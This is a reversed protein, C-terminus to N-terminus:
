GARCCAQCVSALLMPEPEFFFTVLHGEPTLLPGANRLATRLAQWHWHWDFRRRRLLPRLARAAPADWLWNAWLASLAGFVADPRPPDTLILAVSGPPVVKAADRAPLNVLIYGEADGRVLAAVDEAQPVPLLPPSSTLHLLREEFILWINREVYYAPVRLTRPRPRKEDYPDLSSGADFCDILAATLATRVDDGAELGELRMSLDMLASLNRPTYLGVLDAAQERAPHHLPAARDLAYYYAIGRPPVRRAAELDEDDPTGERVEECRPCRVAKKFPYNGDRDWAFWEAVGSVGCTPCTSRYLWSMYRHLPREGKPSDALHTFTVKVKDVDLRRLRLRAAVLLLPNVSFGLARRGEVVAERVITPGQCFLDVVLDGPRTLSRVYGGAARAPQVPRYRALPGEPRGPRGPIFSTRESV